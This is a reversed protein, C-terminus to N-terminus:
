HAGRSRGAWGARGAGVVTSSMGATGLWVGPVRASGGRRKQGPAVGAAAGELAM